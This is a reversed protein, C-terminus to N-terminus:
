SRNFNREKDRRAKNIAIFIRLLIVLGIPILYVSTMQLMAYDWLLYIILIMLFFIVIFYGWNGYEAKIDRVEYKIKSNCKKCKVEIKDGYKLRIETRTGGKLHLINRKFCKKCYVVLRM